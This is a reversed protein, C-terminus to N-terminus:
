LSILDQFQDIPVPKSFLYGQYAACGHRSLFELQQVSEVGEAIVTLNLSQGLAIITRCIAADNPDSLVDRVFSQDIKLQSLPLRKLYNLSSFGTGFDDLSFSLGQNKLKNMRSIIDETHTILMSETLELKLKAPDAKSRAIISQLREDFDPQNFQRASVNVALSLHATRPSGAWDALQACATELIWEGMPIILGCEEALPIFEAPSVLGREPHHWRILTEAGIVRNNEVQPQFYLVFQGQAVAQRLSDEQAARHLAHYQLDGDFFRLSNRGAAKAQYMAIDAQKLIEDMNERQDGFLTIGISPTSNIRHELIAYPKGLATLIKEGVAIAQAAAEGQVPSLDELMVVFEDGGLRAATDMDRINASLRHAVEQLLLDGIRHGLTDNLIKFNDIDIFLLAGERGSRISAALTQHLRDMLLRRNPLHTLPDYFALERIQDEQIKLQTIDEAIGLTGYIRNHADRLPIKTTRLINEVQNTVWREEYQSLEGSQCVQQDSKRFQEALDQPYYQYDTTGCISDPAIGLSEAYAANCRVYTSDLDKEWVIQPLSDLLTRFRANSEQRMREATDIDEGVRPAVVVILLSSALLVFLTNASAIIAPNAIQFWGIFQMEGLSMVLMMVALAPLFARILRAKTSSDFFVGMLLSRAPPHSLFALGLVVFLLATPLAIPVVTGGYLLPVGQAYAIVAVVGISSLCVALADFIARIIPTWKTVICFLLEVACILFCVATLPSMKGVLAVPFQPSHPFLVLPILSKLDTESSLVMFAQVFLVLILGILIIRIFGWQPKVAQCLLAVGSSLFYVSAAVNMPIAYPLWTALIMAGSMWGILSAVSVVVLVLCTVQSLTVSFTHQSKNVNVKGPFVM